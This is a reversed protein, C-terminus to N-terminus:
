RKTIINYKPQLETNWCFKSFYRWLACKGGYESPMRIDHVHITATYECLISVCTILHCTMFTFYQFSITFVRTKVTHFQFSFQDFKYLDFIKEWIYPVTTVNRQYCMKQYYHLLLQKYLLSFPSTHTACHSSRSFLISKQTLNLHKWTKHM